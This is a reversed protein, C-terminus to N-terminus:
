FWKVLFEVENLQLIDSDFIGTDGSIKAGNVRIGTASESSSILGHEHTAGIVLHEDLISPENLAIDVGAKRGVTNSGILLRFDQGQHAGNRALLWGALFRRKMASIVPVGQPRERFQPRYGSNQQTASRFMLRLGGITVEDGDFLIERKTAVGNVILGERGGLDSVKCKDHTSQFLAHSGSLGPATLVVDADWGSGVVVDGEQLRFDEGVHTGDLGILWGTTTTGNFGAASQSASMLHALGLQAKARQKWFGHEAIPCIGSM